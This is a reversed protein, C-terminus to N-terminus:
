MTSLGVGPFCFAGFMSTSYRVKSWVSKKQREEEFKKYQKADIKDQVCKFLMLMLIGGLVVGAVSAGITVSVSPPEPCDTM